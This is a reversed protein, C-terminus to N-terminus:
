VAFVFLLRMAESPFKELFCLTRRHLIYLVSEKGKCSFFNKGLWEEMGAAYTYRHTRIALCRIGSCLFLIESNGKKADIVSKNANGREVGSDMGM